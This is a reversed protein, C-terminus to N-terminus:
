ETRLARTTSSRAAWGAPLLAGALAIVLGGFALPVLVTLHYVDIDARPIATGAARGMAPLVWDHLLIGAPVGLLGALLGIGGVSTLVMAITQRPSMGLAKFVGLDHVRERTDLVVTNLVGLGAVTVLLLTLTGALTDMAVVTSSIEGSNVEAMANLPRLASNLGDLYTKLDTGSALDIHYENSEPWDPAALGPLSGADTIIQQGEDNLDLVEGVIRVPAAHGASILTITDGVHVGTTQLFGTPVVAEGPGAFWRGKIMQYSAWSSDGQFTIVNTAGALGAVSVEAHGTSFYRRTGPQGKIVAAIAADAAPVAPGQGGPGQGGPGQGGPGQGGPGQGPMPVFGHVIVAGANRRNLGEQIGALSSALGVGFTVGLAGLAVAVAITASRGPRTFPNGLGLSVPRPLPLRGLLRRAGRGRGAVPTRGVAIADVSRLRGARLAPVLATVAVAVLAGLPVVVSVWPALHPTGTGFADGEDTLVPIAALNGLVVGLAAGVAAPILAQAVYARTVQAPTFGLSKLIGIRRTAAGVAGSVVIGIILVSMALGLVGFAVVFPAFTGATREAALQVTRYSSAGTFAGHPVAAAIVARDAAVDADSAAKAFRYLMQYGAPVGPGTLATLQAPSVWGQATQGISRALGVVTLTPGGPAGPFAVKDGVEFPTFGEAWVIQGPGTIWHGHTIELRDVDGGQDARGVLTTAPLDVGAPVALNGGQEAAVSRPQLSATAFPGAAATVGTLHATATLQAATVLAGDFAGALHAGHQRDFAHRFPASSAVLLGAALVSATVALLTTLTMVVTQVRRRGVGARVITGLEGGSM